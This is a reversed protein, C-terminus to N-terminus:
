VTRDGGSALPARPARRVIQRGWIIAPHEVWRYCLESAVVTAAATAATMALAAAWGSLGLGSYVGMLVFILLPFHLIYVSYSRAGAARALDSDLLPSVAPSRLYCVLAIWAAVPLLSRSVVVMGLALAVLLWPYREFSPLRDFWLRTAIGILFFWGATLLMSSTSYTGFVGARAAAFLLITAFGARMPWKRVAAIAFPAVLYFQWELSLSWEIGLLLGASGPLLQEPPLGHFMTLHLSLHALPNAAWQQHRYTLMERAEQVGPDPLLPFMAVLLVGLPLAVLYAPYLRLTRRLIYDRYNEGASIVLHTIVFGSIIIFVYVSYYGMARGASIVSTPLEPIMRIVHSEVVLWALWARAGEVGKFM